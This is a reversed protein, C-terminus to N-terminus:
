THWEAVIKAFSTSRHETHEYLLLDILDFRSPSKQWFLFFEQTTRFTRFYSFLYLIYINQLVLQYLLPCLGIGIVPSTVTLQPWPMLEYRSFPTMFIHVTLIPGRQFQAIDKLHRFFHSCDISFFQYKSGHYAEFNKSFPLPFHMEGLVGMPSSLSNKPWISFSRHVM